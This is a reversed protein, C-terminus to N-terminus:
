DVRETWLKAFSENNQAAEEIAQQDQPLLPQLMGNVWKLLDEAKDFHNANWRQSDSRIAAVFHGTETRYIMLKPNPGSSKGIVEGKFVLDSKDVREIKFEQM